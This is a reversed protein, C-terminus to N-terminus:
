DWLSKCPMHDGDRAANGSKMACREASSQRTAPLDGCQLGSTAAGCGFGQPFSPSRRSAGVRCSGPLPFLSNPLPARGAPGLQGRLQSRIAIAGIRTVPWRRPAPFAPAIAPVRSGPFRGTATTGDHPRPAGCSRPSVERSSTRSLDHAAPANEMVVACSGM